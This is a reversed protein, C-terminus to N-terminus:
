KNVKIEPVDNRLAFIVIESVLASRAPRLVKLFEM